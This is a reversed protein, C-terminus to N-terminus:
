GPNKRHRLGITQSRRGHDGPHQKAQHRSSHNVASSAYQVASCVQLFLKLRDTIPLKREDCYDDIPKGEILEMVFYPVGEETRGGDLLRAINPHDLGALIQRENKFRSIVFDSNQGGRVVKIAVQKLYEDDARFARYVEGMGGSGIQALIQYSGLRQGILSTRERRTALASGFEAPPANLFDSGTREHSAILSNLEKQLDPDVAGIQALYASRHAPEMELAVLLKEKIEDWRGALM